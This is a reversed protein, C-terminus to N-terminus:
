IRPRLASPSVIRVSILSRSNSSKTASSTLRAASSSESLQSEAKSVISSGNDFDRHEAQLACRTILWQIARDIDSWQGFESLVFSFKLNRTKRSNKDCIFIEKVFSPCREDALSSSEAMGENGAMVGQWQRYSTDVAEDQWVKQSLNERITDCRCRTRQNAQILEKLDNAGVSCVHLFLRRDGPNVSMSSSTTIAM